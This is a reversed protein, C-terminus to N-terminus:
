VLRNQELSVASYTTSQLEVAGRAEEDTTAGVKARHDVITM